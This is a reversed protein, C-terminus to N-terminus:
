LVPAFLRFFNEKILSTRPRHLWENRDIRRAHALDREFHEELNRAIHEDYLAVAIEFNLMLSRMDFNPSGVLSWCGDITLTKAHYLGKQYEYIQVGTELLFEYFSRGAELTHIFNSTGATLLRVDVGRLAAAALAMVLDEPPVFYSTALTISRKAATLATFLVTDLVNPDHDPGGPLVQARVQGAPDPRPFLRDSALNEKTAFFWDEAFAHQLQLVAPGRLILMTDRWFGYSESRGVYEDGVNLGGTFGVRGDVILSKRHNRLNISWRERLHSGPLSPAVEIGADRMPRLFRRGLFMSGIGDYIFRVQVGRRAQEILLDRFRTGLEDARWIYFQINISDRAERIAQEMREFARPTEPILEAANGLTSEMRTLRAAVTEIERQQSTLGEQSPAEFGGLSELAPMIERLMRERERQRRRVGDMGFVTYVLPGLGPLFVIAFIWAFTSSRHKRRSLLSFPILLLTLLYVAVLCGLWLSTM